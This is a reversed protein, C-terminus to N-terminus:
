YLDSLKDTFVRADIKTITPTSDIVTKTKKAIKLPSHSLLQM